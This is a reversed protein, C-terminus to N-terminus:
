VPAPPRWVVVLRQALRVARVQTGPDGWPAETPTTVTTTWSGGTRTLGRLADITGDTAAAPWLTLLRRGVWEGADRLQRSCSVVTFDGASQQDSSTDTVLLWPDLHVALVADLWELEPDQAVVHNMVLGVVRQVRAAILERREGPFEQASSWMLGVVANVDDRDTDIVPVTATAEYGSGRVLLSAPFDEARAAPDSWFLAQRSRMSHVYPVDALPPISRWSSIVDGAVGVQGVLQLSGDAAPRYLAVAQVGQDALVQQVLEAAEDGRQVSGAVADLLADTVGARVDPASALENWAGSAASSRPVRDRLLEDPPDGVWQSDPLTVGVLTAAVEVLRVNYEQSMARLKAFAEDLTIGHREVLVGKAQEIVARLRAAARLGSVEDRLAEITDILDDPPRRRDQNPSM